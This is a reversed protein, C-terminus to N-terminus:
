CRKKETFAAKAEGKNNAGAKPPECLKHTTKERYFPEIVTVTPARQWQWSKVYHSIIQKRNVNKPSM